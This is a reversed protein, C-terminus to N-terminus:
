CLEYHLTNSFSVESELDQVYGPIYLYSSWIILTAVVHILKNFGYLTYFTIRLISM